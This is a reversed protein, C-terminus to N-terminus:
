NSVIRTISKSNYVTTPNDLTYFFDSDSVIELISPILNVNHHPYLTFDKGGVGAFSDGQKVILKEGDSFYITAQQM